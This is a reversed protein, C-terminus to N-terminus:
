KEIQTRLFKTISDDSSFSSGELEELTPERFKLRRRRSKRKEVMGTYKKRYFNNQSMAKENMEKLNYRFALGKQMFCPMPSQESIVRPFAKDFTM